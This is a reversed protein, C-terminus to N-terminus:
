GRKGRRTLYVGINIGAFDALLDAPDPARDRVYYQHFEDSLGYCSAIIITLVAIKVVDIKGSSERIARFIFSGLVFYLLIHAIKDAHFVSVRPLDRGEMSSFM